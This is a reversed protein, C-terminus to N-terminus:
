VTVITIMMRGNSGYELDRLLCLWVIDMILPLEKSCKLLQSLNRLPFEQIELVYPYELVQIVHGINVM